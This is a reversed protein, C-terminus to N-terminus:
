LSGLHVILQSASQVKTWNRNSAKARMEGQELLLQLLSCSGHTLRSFIRPGRRPRFLLERVMPLQNHRQAGPVAFDDLDLLQLAGTPAVLDHVFFERRQCAVLLSRTEKRRELMGIGCSKGVGIALAKFEF